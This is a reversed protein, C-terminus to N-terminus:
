VCECEYCYDTDNRCGGPMKKIMRDSTYIKKELDDKRRIFEAMASCMSILVMKGSQIKIVKGEDITWIWIGDKKGMRHVSHYISGERSDCEIDQLVQAKDDPHIIDLIKESIGEILDNTDDYGLMHAMKKNACYLPYGDEYYIGIVGYKEEDYAFDAFLLGIEKESIICM